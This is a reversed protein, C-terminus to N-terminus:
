GFCNTVSEILAEHTAHGLAKPNKFDPGPSGLMMFGRGLKMGAHTTRGAEDKFSHGFKRLGFAKGLWAVAAGADRYLLYPTIAM